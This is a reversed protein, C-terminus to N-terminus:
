RSFTFAGFDASSESKTQDGDSMIGVGVFNPVDAKADGGEFHKRFEADLNLEVTEWTGRPPGAAKIITDQAVFLNRKRACVRGLPVNGGSWVYKLTYHRLGRKWTVYVVAASDGKGATCEDAGKPTIRARWSWRLTKLSARDREPAQWGLVATKMPPVYRSRVFVQGAEKVISYYNAPGSEREIIRWARADVVLDREAATSTETVVSSSAVACAALLRSLGGPKTRTVRSTEHSGM